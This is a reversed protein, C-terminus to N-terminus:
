INTCSTPGLGFGAFLWNIPRLFGTSPATRGSSMRTLSLLLSPGGPIPPSPHVNFRVHLISLIADAPRPKGETSQTSKNKGIPAFYERNLTLHLIESM